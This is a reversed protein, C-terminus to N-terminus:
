RGCLAQDVTDFVALMSAFGSIEFVKKVMGKVSCCSLRGGSTSAKQAIVLISRLGSSCIYELKDCDLVIATAGQDLLETIRSQFVPAALTDMRGSVCVLLVHGCTRSSIELFLRRLLSRYSQLVTPHEYSSM